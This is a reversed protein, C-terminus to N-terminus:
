NKIHRAHYDILGQLPSATIGGLTIGKREATERLVDAFANAVGGTFHVPLSRAGKYLSVNRRFFRAFERQVMSYVYPNWLNRHLFPVLSALFKNPEPARYVRELVEPLTLSCERFFKERVSLPLREKFIDSVLRKGLAAGSGEDGLIFGLSPINRTIKNGDYLCSNSGTGLICAIGPKDGLLGRAAGLLDSTATAGETGTHMRLVDEIRTCIEPTACGAGYYYIHGIEADGLQARLAGFREKLLLDDALLANLGPQNVVLAQNGENDLLVWDTKTSGADAILFYKM